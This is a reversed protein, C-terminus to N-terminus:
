DTMAGNRVLNLSLKLDKELNPELHSYGSYSSHSVFM